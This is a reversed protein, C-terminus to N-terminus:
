RNSFSMLPFGQVIAACVLQKGFPCAQARSDKMAAVCVGQLLIFSVMGFDGATVPVHVISSIEHFVLRPAIAGHVVTLLPDM